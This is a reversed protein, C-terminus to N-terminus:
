TTKLKIRPLRLLMIEMLLALLALLVCWKWLVIGQNLETVLGTLNKQMGNALSIQKADCMATLQEKTLFQQVSEKRDFNFALIPRNTNASTKLEYFGSHAIHDNVKLILNAGLAHQEPIFEELKNVLKYATENSKTDNPVAIPNNAGIVFANSTAHLGSNVMNVMLPVFIAKIPLDSADTSLPVSFIYANGKENAYKSVLSTNNKLGLLIEENSVGNKNFIYNKKVLPVEMNDTLKIFVNKFLSAATNIYTVPFKGEQYTTIPNISISQLFENYAVVDMNAAPVIILSGGQKLFKQLGETLGTSISKVENLIISQQEKLDTYDIRNVSTNQLLYNKNNAFLNNLYNSEALDNIITVKIKDLVNFTFYYTDDFLIPHDDISVEAANWGTQNITFPSTDIITHQKLISFDGLSKLQNNIKLTLRNGALDNTGYNTIKVLLNCNQNITQLPTEFWCSDISLNTLEDSELQVAHVQLFSDSTYNNLNLQSPQFDSILFADHQGNKIEALAARQKILVNAFLASNPTPKIEEIEKLIEEKSLLRQQKGSLENTLLQFRDDIAYAQVIEVAKHKATELLPVGNYTANMSFSNDVFISVAHNNATKKVSKSGQLFPQAFAMVLFFLVLLRMLLVLWHRIRNQSTTQQQVEKLFRISSFQVTKYRRFNFLHIIVPIALSSLSWLFSTYLFQM